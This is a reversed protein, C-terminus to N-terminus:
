HRTAMLRWYGRSTPLRFRLSDASHVQAAVAKGAPACMQDSRGSPDIALGACPSPTGALEIPVVIDVVVALDGYCDQRESGDAVGGPPSPPQWWPLRSM